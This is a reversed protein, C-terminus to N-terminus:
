TLLVAAERMLKGIEIHNPCAREAPSYDNAAISKKLQDPLAKFLDRANDTEGYSNFYMMYRLVDPIRTQYGMTSECKMCAHCYLGCTSQSLQFLQRINSGALKKMDRAAAVNDKLMTINKMKSCCAAIREDQWVTKLKAQEVTFGQNIFSETVSLEKSSDSM